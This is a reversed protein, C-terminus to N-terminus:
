SMASQLAQIESLLTQVCRHIQQTNKEDTNKLTNQLQQCALELRPVGCYMLGGLLQHNLDALKKWNSNEYAVEINKQDHEINKLLLDIMSQATIENRHLKKAGLVLDIEKAISLPILFIFQTGEHEVSKVTIQGNLDEIYKKVVSLGIGSGQYVDDSSPSLQHFRIFVDDIKDKPIGIGTDSVECCLTLQDQNIKTSSLKIQIGGKVTFKLANTVLELIILFLLKSDGCVFPPLQDDTVLTLELNKIIAKSKVLNLIKEVLNNLNFVSASDKIM